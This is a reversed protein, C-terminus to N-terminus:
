APKGTQFMHDIGRLLHEFHGWPPKDELEFYTAVPRDQGKLKAAFGFQRAIGNLMAVSARTGDRYEILFIASNKGLREIWNDPAKYPLTKLAADVVARSWRGDKEAQLVADGQVVQVSRVGTEGGKRRETM